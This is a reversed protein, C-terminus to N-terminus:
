IMKYRVKRSLNSKKKFDKKLGHPLNQIWVFVRAKGGARGHRERQVQFDKTRAMHINRFKGSLELQEVKDRQNNWPKGQYTPM